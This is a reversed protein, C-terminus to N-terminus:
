KAIGFLQNFLEGMRYGALAMREEAITLAMKKYAPSPTANRRLNAPYLQASAIEFSEKKWKDPSEISLRSRFRAFPHRRMIRKAIPGIYEADCLDGSNPQSRVIISDWFSHLNDQNDRPTGAPTLLFLNGGQDGKPELETV